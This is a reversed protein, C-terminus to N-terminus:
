VGMDWMEDLKQKILGEFFPSEEITEYMLRRVRDAEEQTKSEDDLSLAYITALSMIELAYEAGDDSGVSENLIADILLTTDKTFLREIADDRMYRKYEDWDM